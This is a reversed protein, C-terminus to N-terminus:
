TYRSDLSNGVNNQPISSTYSVIALSDKSFSLTMSATISACEKALASPGVLIRSRCGDPVKWCDPGFCLGGITRIKNNPFGWLLPGGLTYFCGDSQLRSGRSGPCSLKALCGGRQLAEPIRLAKDALCATPLFCNFMHARTYVTHPGSKHLRRVHEAFEVLPTGLCHQYRRMCPAM